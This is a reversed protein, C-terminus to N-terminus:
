KKFVATIKDWLKEFFDGIREFFARIKLAASDAANDSLLEETTMTYTEYVTPDNKDITIVRFGRHNDNYSAFTCGPSSVLDIGEYDVAYANIHDHGFFVATVDGQELMANVQAYGPAFNTNPPCPAEALWNTTLDTGDPLTYWSGAFSVAGETGAPVEKLADKIQPPVIHQFAISPVSVGGNAAKLEDAKARYWEIQEPLVYGYGGYNDDPNYNGSDFCWINFLVKDSDKSEYVPINYTGANITHNDGVTLEATVGTCGIFCKYTEYQAIQELKTYPTDDDDHNGFVMAVPVGYKELIDMYSKIATRGEAKTKCSYGGINDGTLIILDPDSAEIARKLSKKALPDMVEDDQIDAMQLITLKGEDNFAMHANAPRSVDVDAVSAIAPILLLAGLILCVAVALYKKFQKM